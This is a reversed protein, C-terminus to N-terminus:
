NSAQHLLEQAHDQSSQSTAGSLMRMIENVRENNDLVQLQSNAQTKHALLQTHAFAAVQAQHTVCIVQTHAGLERLLKGVVECTNGGIGADVEDFILSPLSSQQALAIQIALSIRSLEGGSAVNKLPNYSIRSNTSITFEVSELGNASYKDTQQKILTKFSCDQMGLQALYNNVASDLSDQKDQRIESLETALQQYKEQSDKVQATLKQGHSLSQKLQSIQSDLSELTNVLEHPQLQYKRALNYIADLRQAVEQARAPNHEIKNTYSSISAIAEQLILELDTLYQVSEQLLPHTDDINQLCSQAHSLQQSINISDDLSNGGCLHQAQELNQLINVAQDLRKQEAELDGIEGDHLELSSIDDAQTQLFALQGTQQQTLEQAAQQQKELNQWTNFAGAVQGALSSTGIFKDFLGLHHTSVLLAQHAHQRHLNVLYQGLEKLAQLNAPEGNIYCKSTGNINLTRKINCEDDTYGNNALWKQAGVLNDIKFKAYLTSQSAGQYIIEGRAREGLLMALADLIISKGAGSEGSIAIFGAPTDLELEQILVFNKIFLQTLM